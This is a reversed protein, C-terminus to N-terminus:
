AGLLARCRERVVDRLEEPELIRCDDGWFMVFRAVERLDNVEFRLILGGDAEAEITQGPRWRREGIRLSTPPRFRLAVRHVGDGRVLGFSGTMYDDIRFDAPREFREGTDCASRFRQVAFVRVEGRRSDKAVAYWSEDRLLLSYPDITRSTEEGRDISRYVVAVRRREVAAKALAAFVDPDYDTEASPMVALCDGVADIQISVVDPLLTSLKRFARRLDGEFPTGRYQGVMRGALLLAVMEGETAAFFPLQFTTETYRYGNRIPDFELPAGLQDRMYAIDRRVTRPDVELRAGLSSANPWLGSRVAQDIAMMRALPPRSALRM